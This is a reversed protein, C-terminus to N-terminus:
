IKRLVAFISQGFPPPVFRELRSICPVFYRDFLRIQAPSQEQRQFIRANMWWGFFGPLNVYHLKEVAFGTRAALAAVSARRYRRYHGLNRDIPGYLAPFAPLLLVVKGGRPLISAMERLAAADDAIHELVNLCVCCDTHFRAVPRLDAGDACVVRVNARGPYRREHEALADADSDVAIVLERDLLWRTFNGIGCGIEAVRRGLEPTVLAAQWAFYNKAQSMRRQDEIAYSSLAATM